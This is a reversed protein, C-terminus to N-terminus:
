ASTAQSVTSTSNSFQYEASHLMKTYLTENVTVPIELNPFKIQYKKGKKGILHVKVPDKEM